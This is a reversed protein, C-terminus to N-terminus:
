ILNNLDNLQSSFAILKLQSRLLIEVLICCTKQLMNNAVIQKDGSAERISQEVETPSHKVHQFAIALEESNRALSDSNSVISHVAEELGRSLHEVREEIDVSMRSSFCGVVEGNEVLPIGVAVYPVGLIERSVRSVIKRKERIVNYNVGGNRM